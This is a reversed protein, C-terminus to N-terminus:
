GLKSNSNYDNNFFRKYLFVEHEKATRTALGASYTQRNKKEFMKPAILHLSPPLVSKRVLQGGRNSGYSSRRNINFHCFM